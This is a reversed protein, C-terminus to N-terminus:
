KKGILELLIEIDVENGLAMGGQDLTKNYSIGFDKRDLTVKGEIGVRIVGEPDITHGLIEFPIVINKTVGHMTLNGWLEYTAGKKKVAISKFTIEPFKAVDFFDATRLHKDRDANGTDISATKIVASVTSDVIGETDAMIIVEYDNFHGMVKSIMLHRITFSISSHVPDAKFEKLGFCFGWLFSFVIVGMILRKLIM